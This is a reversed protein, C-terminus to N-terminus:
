KKLKGNSNMLKKKWQWSDIVMHKITKEAKWDLKKNARTVDAYSVAADGERRKSFVYPVEVSNYEEFANIVDLVSYGKGTGINIVEMTNDTRDEFLLNLSLVHASALDTVHIYDRIGTGDKTPYDNGFIKLKDIERAAVMNIYPMLNNPEGSPEEGILSSRHAGVPNFYRLSVVNWNKDSNILWEFYKEAKLKSEGYVSIASLRHNEDIPTKEPIGYITASSSFILNKVGSNRMVDCLNMTGYLNNFFYKMSFDMSESVSKYGAFHMVADFNHSMFIKNLSLFDTIDCKYFLIDRGTIKKINDIVETKSNELNDVVVVQHNSELLEVCVHSGIFGLGGTVLINM